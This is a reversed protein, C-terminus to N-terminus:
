TNRPHKARVEAKPPGAFAQAVEIWRRMEEGRFELDLEDIERRQTVLLSFDRASGSMVNEAEEPGWVWEEGTPSTLEIRFPEAPPELGNIHFSFDRTIVGLHAIDRLAEGDEWELGLTDAIDQGHAWTEMIRATIISRAKMSPGFWGYRATRDANALAKELDTRGTVWQEFLVRPDLKAGADAPGDTLESPNEQAERLYPAFANEGALTALTAQDTWALHAIQHAITWSPAPTELRWQQDDLQAVMEEVKDSEQKLRAIAATYDDVMDTM